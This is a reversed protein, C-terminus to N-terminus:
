LLLGGTAVAILVLDVAFPLRLPHSAYAALLGSLLAGCGLGVLLVAASVFSAVRRRAPASLDVLFATATGTFLGASLGSIVRAAYLPAVSSATLFLLASLASLGLGALLPVKRGIDDSLNGFAILGIVVGIAYLAFIVTVRLEGFGYRQEYLPY